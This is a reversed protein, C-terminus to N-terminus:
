KLRNLRAAYDKFSEKSSNFTRGAPLNVRQASGKESRTPNPATSITKVTKAELRASLKGMLFIREQPSASAIEELEDPNNGLHQVIRAGNKKSRLIANQIEPADYIEVIKDIEKEYEHFKPDDKIVLARGALYDATDAQLKKQADAHYVEKKIQEREEHRIREREQEIWRAKDASYRDRDDYDDPDPEKKLKSQAKFEQLQAQLEAAKREAERRHYTQERLRDSLRKRAKAKEEEISKGSETSDTAVDVTKEVAEETEKSTDVVPDIPEQELESLASIEAM